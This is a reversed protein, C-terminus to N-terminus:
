PCIVTVDKKNSKGASNFVEVHYTLSPTPSGVLWISPLTPGSNDTYSTSNAALAILLAGDRYINFGGENSAQDNWTLNVTAVLTAILTPHPACSITAHLDKVPAPLAPTPTAPVPYEPLNATNGTVTAYQGWLWCNGGGSNKIIWYNSPSYKGVVEATQGIVLAGILDYQTGPGTRCNTNTSVSVQPVSPTPTLTVTPTFEPTSTSAPLPTDQAVPQQVGPQLLLAQATVTLALDSEGSNQNQGGPINCALTLILIAILLTSKKNLM